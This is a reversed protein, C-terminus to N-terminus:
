SRKLVLSSRLPRRIGLKAMRSDLTTPNMRLLEAAGGTGRVRWSVRELVSRIHSAEVEFLSTLEASESRIPVPPELVLRPGNAMIVAREILNRLERV